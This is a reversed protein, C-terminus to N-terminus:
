AEHTAEHALTNVLTRLNDQGAMQYITGKIMGVAVMDLGREWTEVARDGLIAGSLLGTAGILTVGLLRPEIGADLSDNVLSRFRETFDKVQQEREPNHEIQM